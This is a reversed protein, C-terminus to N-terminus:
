RRIVSWWKGAFEGPKPIAEQTMDNSLYSFECVAEAPIFPAFAQVRDVVCTSYFMPIGGPLRVVLVGEPLYAATREQKNMITTEVRIAGDVESVEAAHVAIDWFRTEVTEHPRIQPGLFAGTGTGFGGTVWVAGVGLVVAIVLSAVVVIHRPIRRARSTWEPAVPELSPWAVKLLLRTAM